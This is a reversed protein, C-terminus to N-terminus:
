DKEKDGGGKQNNNKGNKSNNGQNGHDEEDGHGNSRPQTAKAKPQEDAEAQAPEPPPAIAVPLRVPKSSQAPAAARVPAPAPQAAIVVPAPELAPAAAVQIPEDAVPEPEALAGDLAVFSVSSWAAVQPRLEIVPAEVVETGMAALPDEAAVDVIPVEVEAPVILVDLSTLSISEPGAVPRPWLLPTLPGVSLHEALGPVAQVRAALATSLTSVLDPHGGSAIPSSVVPVPVAVRGPSTPALLQTDSPTEASLSHYGLVMGSVTVAAAACAFAASGRWSIPSAQTRRATSRYIPAHEM